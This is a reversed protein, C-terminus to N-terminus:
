SRSALARTPSSISSTRRIRSRSRQRPRRPAAPAAQEVPAGTAPQGADAPAAAAAPAEPAAPPPAVPDAPEADVAPPAGADAAPAGADASADGAPTAIGGSPAIIFKTAPKGSEAGADPNADATKTPTAIGGGQKLVFPEVKGKGADAIPLGAADPASTGKAEVVLSRIGDDAASASQVFVAGIAILASTALLKKLM